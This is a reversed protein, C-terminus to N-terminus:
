TGLLDRFQKDKQLKCTTETIVNLVIGMNFFSSFFFSSISTLSKETNVKFKAHYKPIWYAPLYRNRPLCKNFSSRAPQLLSAKAFTVNNCPKDELLLSHEVTYCLQSRKIDLFM